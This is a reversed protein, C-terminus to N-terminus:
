GLQAVAWVLLAAHLLGVIVAMIERRGRPNMAFAVLAAVLAVAGVLMAAATISMQVQRLGPRQWRYIVIGLLQLLLAGV